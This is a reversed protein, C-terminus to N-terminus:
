VLFSERRGAPIPVAPSASSPEPPELVSEAARGLEYESYQEDRQLGFPFPLSVLKRNLPVIFHVLQKEFLCM